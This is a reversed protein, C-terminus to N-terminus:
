QNKQTDTSASASILPAAYSAAAKVDLGSTKLSNYNATTLVSTYGFKAGM